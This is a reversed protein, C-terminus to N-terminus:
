YMGGEFPEKLRMESRGEKKVLNEVYFVWGDEHWKRLDIEGGPELTVANVSLYHSQKTEEKGDADTTIVTTPNSKWVRQLKEKDAQEKRGAWHEVDLDVQEWTGIVGVVRVGCKKCFYFACKKAATRYEGLEEIKAPSTLIFDNAPNIPRCHFYGMKQCTTCNCKYIRVSETKPDNIPPFKLRVEYKVDGCHCSGPYAKHSAM